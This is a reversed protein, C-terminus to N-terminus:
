RTIELYGSFQEGSSLLLQYFYTGDPLPKSDFDGSWDNQYNDKKFVENGWRNFVRVTNSQYNQLGDIFFHDNLGDGNPSFGNYIILGNCYVHVSVLAQACGANNCIEYNFYDALYPSCYDKNPTYLMQMTSDKGYAMVVRGKSPQSMIRMGTMAGHLTDNDLIRIMIAKNQKTAATDTLAVPLIPNAIPRAPIVTARVHITDCNGRDDCIKICADAQGLRLGTIFVCSDRWTNFRITNTTDPCINVVSIIRGTLVTHVCLTDTDGVRVTIRITDRPAPPVIVIPGAKVTTYAKLAACANSDTCVLLCASDIGIRLGRITVCNTVPNITYRVTTSSANACTNQVSTINGRLGLNGFCITISDGVILTDRRVLQQTSLCSVHVILTDTCNTSRNRFVLTHQGTALSFQTGTTDCPLLRQSYPQGNDTITYNQLSSLPLGFCYLAPTACDTQTLSVPVRTMMSGCARIGLHTIVQSAISTNGCADTATWTRTFLTDIGGAVLTWPRVVFSISPNPDCNDAATAAAPNPLPDGSQITINVPVGSIVPAIQDITKVYLTFSSSNGSSDRATWTYSQFTLYGDTICTGLRSTSDLRLSPNLDLNDTVRVDGLGFSLQTGCPNVITDSNRRNSIRGIPTIVPSISDRGVFVSHNNAGSLTTRQMGTTTNGCADTSTWTSTIISDNGSATRTESFVLRPAADCNDTTTVVPRIPAIGGTPVILDAPIGVLVPPVIDISRIHITHMSTNGSSDRATWTYTKLTLYGDILCTGNRSTSDLRVTPNRDMNDTVNVSSLGFYMPNTCSTTLTDGSRRQTLNGNGTIVPPITDRVGGNRIDFNVGRVIIRQTGATSNGCADAATWTRTITSDRRIEAYRVTVNDDCNDTAYIYPIAPVAAINAVTTDRPVGVLNPALHDVVKIFITWNATNGCRDTATWKCEMLVLFGDVSCHGFTRAVDTFGPVIGASCNDTITADLARFLPISGCTTTLTDGSRYGRLQPNNITIVPPTNDVQQITQTASASNGFHDVVTWTILSRVLGCPTTDRREVYTLTPNADLSDIVRPLSITPFAQDCSLTSDRVLIIPRVSDQRVLIQITQGGICGTNSGAAMVRITTPNGVTYTLVSDTGLSLNGNIIDSWQYRLAGNVSLRIVDGRRATIKGATIVVSSTVTLTGQGLSVPFFHEGNSTTLIEARCGTNTRACTLTKTAYTSVGMDRTSGDCSLTDPTIVKFSLASTGNLQLGTAMPWTLIQIGAVIQTIPNGPNYGLPSTGVSSNPKYLIGVPLKVSLEDSSDSPTTTLNKVNIAITSEGNPVFSGSDFGVDYTKASALDAGQIHLPLSEGAKINTPTNCLSRGQFTYYALTGSKFDCDNTFQFKIKYQNSDNPATPNFGQLGNTNLYSNLLAFNSFEFTQGRMSTGLFTPNGTARRYPASPPYAVEVKNLVMNAGRMPINLTTKIDYATGLDTNRVLIELFTTDCIGSGTLTQRYFEADLNPNANSLVTLPMTLNACPMYQTPNWTAPPLVCNWGTNLAVNSTGCNDVRARIKIINCYDDLTRTPTATTLGNMLAFTNATDTGFRKLPLNLINAPNTVDQMSLVVAHGRLNAAPEFSMWTYGADGKISSNCLKVTWEAIGGVATAATNSIPTFALAPPDTYQINNNTTAQQRPSCAGDGIVSAYFKDRYYIKPVLPFVNNGASSGTLSRCNPTAKIRFNFLYAPALTLAPVRLLTDFRAVYHGTSDLNGVPFFNNGYIPHDPISVELQTVFSKIFQPDYDLSISDIGVAQRYEYRFNEVRSFGNNRNLLKYELNTVACGKPFNASSPYAFLTQTKGIRFTDGFNDCAFQQGNDTFYGYSRFLPIKKFEINTRGDDLVAFFGCFNVSDGQVLTIGLGRLCANLDFTLIKTSDVKVTRLKSTDISCSYSQGQHKINVIGRGFKFIENQITTPKNEITQYSIVVGISDSIPTAGVVNNTTMKVSDCPLAIKTNANAATMHTTYSIDTYGFTTRSVDFSTTRLGKACEYAVNPACPPVAYHIRPGKISDCYYIHHCDCPPCFFEMQFPFLTTGPQATCDAKLGLKVTFDGNLYPTSAASFALILTDNSMRNSLLPFESEYLYMKTSDIVPTIGQPLKLKVIFQENGSCNKEFFNVNRSEKHIIKFPRSDTKADPDSCNELFTNSNNPYFFSPKVVSNRLRCADTYDLQAGFATEFNNTCRDARNTLSVGCDVDYEITVEFSAGIPLDDFFGDGDLDALGRGAGDPDTRFLPNNRIQILPSLLTNFNPIQLGAVKISTIRYGGDAFRLSDNGIGIGTSLDFMNATGPDLQVGNNTFTVTQRGSKCYGGIIVATSGTPAFGVNVQGEGIRINDTQTVQNCYRNQCGWAMVHSSTRPKNCNALCFSEIITVTEDPDFSADGNAPISPGRTNGTFYDSTITASIISDGALNFAPRKSIPISRGNVVLSNVTIGAGQTNTYVFNKVSGNLGSNNVLLTRTYCNGVLAYGTTSNTLSMTFFPVKIADRYETSLDSETLNAGGLAYRYDWRDNVILAGNLAITDTYACNAIISYSITVSGGSNINPISLIPKNPNSSSVVSVGPTSGAANLAVFEIGKFLNITTQINTRPSSVVGESSVVVTLLIPDGCINVNRPASAADRFAVKLNNTQATLSQLSSIFFCLILSLNFNYRKRM